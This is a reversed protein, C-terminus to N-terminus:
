RAGLRVWSIVCRRGLFWSGADRFVGADNATGQPGAGSADLATAGFRHM